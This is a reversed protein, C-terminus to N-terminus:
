RTRHRRPGCCRSAASIRCRARSVAGGMRRKGCSGRVPIRGKRELRALVATPFLELPHRARLPARPFCGIVGSIGTRLREFVGGCSQSREERVDDRRLPALPFLRWCLVWCSVATLRPGEVLPGVAESLVECAIDASVPDCGGTSIAIQPRARCTRGPQRRDASRPLGSGRVPIGLAHESADVAPEKPAQALVFAASRDHLRRRREQFCNRIPREGHQVRM